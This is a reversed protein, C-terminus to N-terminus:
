VTTGVVIGIETGILPLISQDIGDILTATIGAANLATTGPTFTHTSDTAITLGAIIAKTSGVATLFPDWPSGKAVNDWSVLAASSAQTGEQISAVGSTDVMLVYKQFSSKAVVTGSLTWFDDTGSLSYFVGNVTFTVTNVTKVKAATTGRAAGGATLARSLYAVAMANLFEAARLTLSSRAANVHSKSTTFAM